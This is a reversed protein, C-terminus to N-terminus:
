FQYTVTVIITDDTTYNYGLPSKVAPDTAASTNINISYKWNAQTQYTLFLNILETTKKVGSQKARDQRLSWTASLNLGNKKTNNANYTVGSITQDNGSPQNYLDGYTDTYFQNYYMLVSTGSGLNFSSSLNYKNNVSRYYKPRRIVAESLDLRYTTKRGPTQYNLTTQL